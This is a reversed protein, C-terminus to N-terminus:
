EVEMHELTRLTFEIKRELRRLPMTQVAKSMQMKCIMLDTDGVIEYFLEYCADSLEEYDVFDGSKGYLHLCIRNDSEVCYNMSEYMMAEAVVDAGELSIVGLMEDAHILSDVASFEDMVVFGKDELMGWLKNILFTLSNRM